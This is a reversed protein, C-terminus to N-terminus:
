SLVTQDCKSGKFGSYCQCDVDHISEPPLLLSLLLKMGPSLKRTPFKGNKVVCRGHGSCLEISCEQASDSMLKLYPGLTESVYHSVNLCVDKSTAMYNGWLVVGSAGLMAAVGSSSEVDRIHLFERTLRYVLNNYAYVPINVNGPRNSDVRKAENVRNATYVAARPDDKFWLGLYTSPYLATSANFLWQIEDNRSITDNHCSLDSGTKAYNHCDPYLYYGWKAKPRLFKVLELTGLMYSKAAAEFEFAAQTTINEESWDPHENRVKDISISQYVLGQGWSIWAWLPRWSEWDIVALGDYDKDPIREQVDQVCKEYHAALDGLQPIGGNILRGDDDIRPYLGLKSSYFIMIKDGDRTENSNIVIDFASLDVSVNYKEKCDATNVNWVAVFPRDPIMPQLINQKLYSGLYNQPFRVSGVICFLSIVILAKAHSMILGFCVM